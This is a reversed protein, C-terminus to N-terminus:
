PPPKQENSQRTSIKKEAWGKKYFNRTKEIFVEFDNEKTFVIKPLVQASIPTLYIFAYDETVAIKQVGSWKTKSESDEDVIQIYDPSLTISVKGAMKKYDEEDYYFYTGASNKLITNFLITYLFIGWIVMWPFKWFLFIWVSVPFIFLFYRHLRAERSHLFHYKDFAVLDDVTLEFSIQMLSLLILITKM